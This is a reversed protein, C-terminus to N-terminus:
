RGDILGQDRGVRLVLEAVLGPQEEHALHGLGPLEILTASPLLAQVRLAQEPPITLDNTPAVLTLAPRLRKLDNAMPVLDWHAMMALAGAAHGPNRVLRAYLAVGADDLTSGTGDLLRRVLADDGARWAFFRPVFPAAAMLKAVPSFLQGALGSLPLFAGGLSVLAAPEIHGDLCMRAGIAAGASHGVVLAPALRLEAMLAGLAQAMGPLSLQWTPPMATFAHGPLDCAVVHFHAALRPALDRWSHTSAGTGHILLLVPPRTAFPAEPALVPVPGWRQVHWRLGAVEVFRSAERHPWDRGDREWSLRESM